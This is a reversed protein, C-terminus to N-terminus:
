PRLAEAVAPDHDGAITATVPGPGDPHRFRVPNALRRDGLARIAGGGVLLTSHGPAADDGLSLLGRRLDTTGADGNANRIELEGDGDVTLTTLGTVGGPGLADLTYRGTRHSFRARRAPSIGWPWSPHWGREARGPSGMGDATIARM